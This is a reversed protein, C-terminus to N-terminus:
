SSGYIEFNIACIAQTTTKSQVYSKPKSGFSGSSANWFLGGTFYFQTCNGVNVWLARWDTTTSRVGVNNIKSSLLTIASQIFPCTPKFGSIPAIVVFTKAINAGKQDDLYTEIQLQLDDFGSLYLITDVFTFKDNLEYTLLKNTWGGNVWQMIAAARTYGSNKVCTYVDYTYSKEFVVGNYTIAELPSDIAQLPSDIYKNESAMLFLLCSIGVVTVLLSVLGKRMEIDPKNYNLPWRGSSKFGLMIFEYEGIMSDCDRIPFNHHQM